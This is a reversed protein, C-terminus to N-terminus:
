HPSEASEAKLMKEAAELKKDRNRKIAAIGAAAIQNPDIWRRYTKEHEGISHGMFKAATGIDMEAGGERWLRAAYAHRLMYPRYNIGNNLRWENLWRGVGDKTQLYKKPAPQRNLLDFLEVWSEDLPIVTRFGTKTEDAIHILNDGGELQTLEPLEHPRLGYTAMMGFHWRYPQPSSMVWEIIVDETPIEYVTQARRYTPVPIEPFDVGTIDAISKCLMMMKRYTSQDRSYRTIAREIAETTVKASLDPIVNLSGMYNVAWTSESTTGLTVKRKYLVRIAQQWSSVNAVKGRQMPTNIAWDAWDFTGRKLLTEVRKLQKEATVRNEPTDDLSLTITQQLKGERKPDKNPLQGRLYLRGKHSAIKVSRTHTRVYCVRKSIKYLLNSRKGISLWLGLQKVLLFYHRALNPDM